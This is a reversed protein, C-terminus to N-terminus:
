LGPLREQRLGTVFGNKDRASFYINVLNVNVKLTQSPDINEEQQPRPSQQAAAARRALARGPRAPRAPATLLLALPLLASPLRMMGM